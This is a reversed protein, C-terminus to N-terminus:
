VADSNRRCTVLRFSATVRRRDEGRLTIPHRAADHRQSPSMAVLLSIDEQSLDLALTLTRMDFATFHDSLSALVHQEKQEEIGILRYDDRLEALHDPNPVVILLLGAPAIVRAFEAANRPAFVDVVVQLSGTAFPLADKLDGVVVTAERCRRAAMRAADRSSDLGWFRCVKAPATATLHARLRELYYGEGCGSDLINVDAARGNSTRPQAPPPGSEGGISAEITRSILAALPAYHGSELFARRAHLMEASDGSNRTRRLYVYGDRAVDFSHGHECRLANADRTLSAACYPCILLDNGSEPHNM